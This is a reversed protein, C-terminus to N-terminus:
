NLLFITSSIYRTHTHKKYNYLTKFHSYITWGKEDDDHTHTCTQTFYFSLSLTTSDRADLYLVLGLSKM